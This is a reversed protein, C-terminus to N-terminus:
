KGYKHSGVAATSFSQGTSFLLNLGTNTYMSHVILLHQLSIQMIIIMIIIFSDDNCKAYARM